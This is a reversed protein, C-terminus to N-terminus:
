WYNRKRIWYTSNIVPLCSAHDRPRCSCPSGVGRARAVLAGKEGGTPMVLGTPGGVREWGMSRQGRFCHTEGSRCWTRTGRRVLAEWIGSGVTHGVQESAWRTVIAVYAIIFGILVVTVVVRSTSLSCHNHQLSKALQKCWNGMLTKPFCEQKLLAPCPPPSELAPFVPGLERSLYM